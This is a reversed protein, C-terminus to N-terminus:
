LCREYGRPESLLFYIVTILLAITVAANYSSPHRMCGVTGTETEASLLCTCSRASYLAGHAGQVEQPRMSTFIASNAIGKNEARAEPLSM